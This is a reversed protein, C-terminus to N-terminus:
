ITVLGAFHRIISQHSQLLQGTYRKSLKLGNILEKIIVM